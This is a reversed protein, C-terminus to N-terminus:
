ADDELVQETVPKLYIGLILGDQNINQMTRAEVYHYIAYDVVSTVRYKKGDDDDLFTLQFTENRPPATIPSKFRLSVTKSRGHHWPFTINVPYVPGELEAIAAIVQDRLGNGHGVIPNTAHDRIVATMTSWDFGKDIKDPDDGKKMDM